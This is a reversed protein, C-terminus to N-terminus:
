PILRAASADPTLSHGPAAPACRFRTLPLTRRHHRGTEFVRRRTPSRLRNEEGPRRAADQLVPPNARVGEDSESLTGCATGSLASGATNSLEAQKRQHVEERGVVVNPPTAVGLHAPDGQIGLMASVVENDVQFTENPTESIRQHIL